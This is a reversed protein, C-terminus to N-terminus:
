KKNRGTIDETKMDGGSHINTINVDRSLVKDLQESMTSNKDEAMVRFIIIQLIELTTNIKALITDIKSNNNCSKVEKLIKECMEVLYKTTLLQKEQTERLKRREIAHRKEAQARLMEARTNKKTADIMDQLESSM